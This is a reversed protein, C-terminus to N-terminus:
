GDAPVDFQIDDVCDLEVRYTTSGDVPFTPVIWKDDQILLRDPIVIRFDVCVDGHDRRMWVRLSRHDAIAELLRPLWNQSCLWIRQAADCEDLMCQVQELKGRKYEPLPLLIKAIAARAVALESAAGGASPFDMGRHAIALLTTVERLSLRPSVWAADLALRSGSKGRRKERRAVLGAVELAQMDRLVTRETVDFCEALEKASWSQGSIFLGVIELLREGRQLPRRMAPPSALPHAEDARLHDAPAAM